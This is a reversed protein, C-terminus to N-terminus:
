QRPGACVFAAELALCLKCPNNSAQVVQRRRPSGCDDAVYRRANRAWTDQTSGPGAAAVRIKISIYAQANATSSVSAQEKGVFMQLLKHLQPFYGALCRGLQRPDSDFDKTLWSASHIASGAELEVVWVRPM